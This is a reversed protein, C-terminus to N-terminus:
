AFPRCTLSRGLHQIGSGGCCHLKVAGSGAASPDLGMRGDSARREGACFVPRARAAPGPVRRVLMLEYVAAVHTLGWPLSVLDADFNVQEMAPLARQIADYALNAALAQDPAHLIRLLYAITFAAADASDAM